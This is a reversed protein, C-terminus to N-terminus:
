VVTALTSVEIVTDSDPEAVDILVYTVPMAVLATVLAAVNMVYRREVSYIRWLQDVCWVVLALLAVQWVSHLLTLCLRGSLVPDVLSHWTM